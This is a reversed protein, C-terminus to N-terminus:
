KYLLSGKQMEPIGTYASSAAKTNENCEDNGPLFTCPIHVTIEKLYHVKTFMLSYLAGILCRKDAKEKKKTAETKHRDHLSSTM